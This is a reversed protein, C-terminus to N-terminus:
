QFSEARFGASRAAVLSLLGALIPILFAASVWPSMTQLKTASPRIAASLRYSFAVFKKEM